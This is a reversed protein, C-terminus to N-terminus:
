DASIEKCARSLSRAIMHDYFPLAFGTGSCGGELATSERTHVGPDQDHQQCWCLQAGRPEHATRAKLEATARTYQRHRGAKNARPSTSGITQLGRAGRVHDARKREHQGSASTPAAPIKCWQGWAVNGVLQLMSGTDGRRRLAGSAEM